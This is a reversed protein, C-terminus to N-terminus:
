GTKVKDSVKVLAGDKRIHEYISYEGNQHKIEIYNEFKDFSEDPGGIDSDQRVDVAIGDLSAKIPTGEPIIFDAAHKLRGTHAPSEDYTIKANEVPYQYKNKPKM